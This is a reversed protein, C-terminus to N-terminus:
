PRAPPSKLDPYRLSGDGIITVKRNNAEPTRERAEALTLYRNTQDPKTWLSLLTLIYDDAHKGVIELDWGLYARGKSQSNIGFATSLRNETSIGDYLNTTICGNIVVLRPGGRGRLADRVELASLLAKGSADRSEDAVQLVQVPQGPVQGSHGSFWFVDSQQMALLTRRANLMTNPLDEQGSNKDANTPHTYFRIDQGSFFQKLQKRLTSNVLHSGAFQGETAKIRLQAQATPAIALVSLLALLASAFRGFPM